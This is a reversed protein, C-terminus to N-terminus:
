KKILSVPLATMQPQTTLPDVGESASTLRSVNAEHWGHSISIVGRRLRADLHVDADLIGFDSTVRASDGSQLGRGAADDPNVRVEPLDRSVAGSVYATSNTRSLQRGSILLLTAPPVGVGMRTLSGALDALRSRFLM